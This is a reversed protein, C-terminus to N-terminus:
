LQRIQRHLVADRQRKVDMRIVCVKEVYEALKTKPFIKFVPFAMEHRLDRAEIWVLCRYANDIKGAVVFEGRLRHGTGSIGLGFHAPVPLRPMVFAREALVYQLVDNL